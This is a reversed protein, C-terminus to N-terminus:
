VQGYYPIYLTHIGPTPGRSNQPGTRGSRNGARLVPGTEAPDEDGVGKWATGRELSRSQM